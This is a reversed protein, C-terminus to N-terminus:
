IIRIPPRSHRTLHAKPKKNEIGTVMRRRPAIRRGAWARGGGERPNQMQRLKGSSPKNSTIKRASEAAVGSLEVVMNRRVSRAVNISGDVM